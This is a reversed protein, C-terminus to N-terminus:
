GSDSRLHASEELTISYLIVYLIAGFMDAAVAVVVAVAVAVVVAVVEEGEEEGDGSVADSGHNQEAMKVPVSMIKRSLFQIGERIPEKPWDVSVDACCLPLLTLVCLAIEKDTAIVGELRERSFFVDRGRYRHRRGEPM